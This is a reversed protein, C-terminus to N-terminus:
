QNRMQKHNLGEIKHKEYYEQQNKDVALSGKLSLHIGNWKLFDFGNKPAEFHTKLPPSTSKELTESAKNIQKQNCYRKLWAIFALDPNDPKFQIFGNFKDFLTQLNEGYIKALQQAQLHTEHQINEEIKWDFRNKFKNKSDSDIKKESKLNSNFLDEESKSEEIKDDKEEEEEKYAFKSAQIAPENAGQIAPENAGQIAPEFKSPSTSKKSVNCISLVGCFIYQTSSFRANPLRYPKNEIYGGKQLDKIAGSITNPSLSTWECLTDITPYTRKGERFFLSLTLAIHKARSPLKEDLCVFNRWEM